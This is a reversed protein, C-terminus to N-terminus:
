DADHINNLSFLDAFVMATIETTLRLWGLDLDPRREELTDRAKYDGHLWACVALRGVLAPDDFSVRPQPRHQGNTNSM